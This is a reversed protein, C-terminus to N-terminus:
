RDPRDAAVFFSAVGIIEQWIAKRAQAYFPLVHWYLGVDEISRVAAFAIGNLDKGSRRHACIDFRRIGQDYAEYPALQYPRRQLKHPLEIL